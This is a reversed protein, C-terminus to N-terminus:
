SGTVIGCAVRGGAGGIPQTTHDDPNEHIIFASGDADLLNHKEGGLSVRGAFIEANATGDSNVFLNPLDGAEPGDSNHMGHAGPIKGVHGKASKFGTNADCAGASHLHFGHYGPTLGIVSIRIIVGKKAQVLSAVGIKDGALSLVDAAATKQQDSTDAYGTTTTVLLACITLLKKM